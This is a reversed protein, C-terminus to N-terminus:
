LSNPWHSDSGQEKSTPQLVEDRGFDLWVGIVRDIRFGLHLVVHCGNLHPVKEATRSCARWIHQIITDTECQSVNCAM